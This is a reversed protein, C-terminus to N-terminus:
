RLGRMIIRTGVPIPYNNNSKIEMSVGNMQQQGQLTGIGLKDEWQASGSTGVWYNDHTRYWLARIHVGYSTNSDGIAKYSGNNVYLKVAGDPTAPVYVYLEIETYNSIDLKSLAQVAETLTVDQITEWGSAGSGGGSLTPVNINVASSGDYTANIAGTFTLPLVSTIPNPQGDVVGLYIKVTKGKVERHLYLKNNEVVYREAM